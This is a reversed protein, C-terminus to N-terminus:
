PLVSGAPLACRCHSLVSLSAVYWFVTRIVLPQSTGCRCAVVMGFAPRSTTLNDVDQATNVSRPRATLTDLRQCYATFCAIYWCTPIIALVPLIGFHLCEISVSATYSRAQSAGVHLRYLRAHGTFM